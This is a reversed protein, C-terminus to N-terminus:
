VSCKPNYCMKSIHQAIAYTKKCAGYVFEYRKEPIVYICVRVLGLCFDVEYSRCDVNITLVESRPMTM